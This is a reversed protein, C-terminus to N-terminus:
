RLSVPPLLAPPRNLPIFPVLPLAEPEAGEGTQDNHPVQQVGTLCYPMGFGGESHDVEDSHRSGLELKFSHRHSQSSSVNQKSSELLDHMLKSSPGHRSCCAYDPNCDQAHSLAPSPSSVALQVWALVLSLPPSPLLSASKTEKLSRALFLRAEARRAPQQGCPFKVGWMRCWVSPSLPLNPDAFKDSCFLSSASYLRLVSLALAQKRDLAHLISQILNTSYHAMISALLKINLM